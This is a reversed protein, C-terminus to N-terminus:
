EVLRLFARRGDSVVHINAFQIEKTAFAKWQMKEVERKAEKFDAYRRPVYLGPIRASEVYEGITLKPKGKLLSPDEQYRDKRALALKM